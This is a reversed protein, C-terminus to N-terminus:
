VIGPHRLVYVNRREAIEKKVWRLIIRVIYSKEDDTLPRHRPIRHWHWLCKRCCTATAHRAKPLIGRYPTNKHNYDPCQLEEFAEMCEEFLNQFGAKLVIQKEIDTLCISRRYSSRRLKVFPDSYRMIATLM